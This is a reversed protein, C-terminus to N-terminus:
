IPLFRIDIEIRKEMVLNKHTTKVPPASFSPLSRYLHLVNQKELGQPVSNM